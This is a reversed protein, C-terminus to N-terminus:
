ATSHNAEAHTMARRSVSSACVVLHSPATHRGALGTPDTLQRQQCTATSIVGGFMIAVVTTTISHSVTPTLPASTQGVAVAKAGVM